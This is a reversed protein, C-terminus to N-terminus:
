GGLDVLEVSEIPRGLFRSGLSRFRETSDTAFFRLRSSADLDLGIPSAAPTSASAAAQPFESELQALREVVSLATAEASDVVAATSGMVALAERIRDAILPYHTCGLLVVNPSCVELAEQLYIRVVERTVHHDLWGQEILPVLLPCSKEVTEVDLAALSRQYAHSAVTAETAFVLCTGLKTIYRSDEPHLEEHLSAQSYEPSKQLYQLVANASPEIVGVVPISVASQIADLALATATNCAIVLLDAYQAELFLAAEVAFRRITAASKSGYPLRATDGLYIYKADPIFKLLARLVTLGGVGSDFVAITPSAGSTNM